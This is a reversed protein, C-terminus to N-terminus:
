LSLLINWRIWYFFINTLIQTSSYKNKDHCINGNFTTNSLVLVITEDWWPDITVVLWTHNQFVRVPNGMISNLMFGSTSYSLVIMDLLCLWFFLGKFSWWSPDNSFLCLTNSSFFFHRYAHKFHGYMALFYLKLYCKYDWPGLIVWWMGFAIKCCLWLSFIVFLGWSARM